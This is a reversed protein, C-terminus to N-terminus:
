GSASAIHEMVTQQSKDEAPQRRSTTKQQNDEPDRSM